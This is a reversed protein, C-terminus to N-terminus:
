LFRIETELKVGKERLVIEKIRRCLEKVDNSTANGKNIVFGSHKTSVEAGGVGFGKLNCEEILAAAFYGEPRKFTSGGSPYELPQKSRRKELTETMKEEIEARNGEKLTFVASVVFYDNKDFLSTRYSFNCEENSVTHLENKEDLYTVSTIVDKVEGGYAGANMLVAGGCSGPIGYAFEMGTLSADKAAMCISSLSAGCSAEISNGEVKLDNFREKTVLVMGEFSEDPALVNTGKGLVIFPINNERALGRLFVVEEANKPYVAFRCEGGTKFSTLEKFSKNEKFEIGKEKLILELDM